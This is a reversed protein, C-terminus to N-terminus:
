LAFPRPLLAGLTTEVQQGDASALVVGIDPSAAFEQLVQRCAGCPPAPEAGGSVVALQQITREGGSIAAFIAIREACMSLGYSANEVNCGAYM